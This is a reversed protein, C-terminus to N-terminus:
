FRIAGFGPRRTGLAANRGCAATVAQKRVMELKWLGLVRDEMKLALM